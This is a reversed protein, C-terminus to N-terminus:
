WRDITYSEEVVGDGIPRARYSTTETVYTSSGRDRSRGESRRRGSDRRRGEGGRGSYGERRGRDDRARRPDRARTRERPRVKRANEGEKRKAESQKAQWHNGMSSTPHWGEEPWQLRIHSVCLLSTIAIGVVFYYLRDIGM